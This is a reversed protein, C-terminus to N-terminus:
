GGFLGDRKTVVKGKIPNQLNMSTGAALLNLSLFLFLVIIRNKVTLLQSISKM